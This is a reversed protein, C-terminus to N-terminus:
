GNYRHALDSLRTLWVNVQHSEHVGTKCWIAFHECNNFPLAYKEEGIRSKARAVTEEPSYLHYDTKRILDFFPAEVPDSIISPQGRRTPRGSNDPFDLIYIFTSDGQFEKYPAEHITIRGSFDGNEAAYHIVRQNGIYIAFHQYLGAKRSAALVDGPLLPIGNVTESSIQPTTAFSGSLRPAKKQNILDQRQTQLGHIIKLFPEKAEQSLDKEIRRFEAEFKRREIDLKVMSDIIGRAKLRNEDAQTILYERHAEQVRILSDYFAKDQAIGLAIDFLGFLDNNGSAMIM